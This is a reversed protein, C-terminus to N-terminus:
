EGDLHLKQRVERDPVNVLDRPLTIPNSGVIVQDVVLRESRQAVGETTGPFEAMGVGAKYSRHEAESSPSRLQKAHLVDSEFRYGGSHM